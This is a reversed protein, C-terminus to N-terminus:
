VYIIGPENSVTFTRANVNLENQEEPLDMLLRLSALKTVPRIRRARDKAKIQVSRIKGDEDKILREVVALEWESRKANPEVQLVMEGVRPSVDLDKPGSSMKDRHERLSRLYQESWLKWFLNLYEEGAKWCQTLEKTSINLAKDFDIPIAPYRVALFDNPTIIEADKEKPVYTIPRSNVIAEIETMALSLQDTTLTQGGYVREFTRKVDQILREYV